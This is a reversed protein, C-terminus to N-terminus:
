IVHLADAKTPYPALSFKSLYPQPQSKRLVTGSDDRVTLQGGANSHVIDLTGDADTDVFAVKWVNADAQRWKLTGGNDLLHIGDNGNYGVVFEAKGDGDLDGAAMDNVGTGHTSTWLLSGDDDYVSANQWGFGGRNLFEYPEDDDINAFEVFSTQGFIKTTSTVDGALTVWAAGKAGAIGIKPEEGSEFRIDTVKGVSVVDVFLTKDLFSEGSLVAPRNLEVPMQVAPMVYYRVAVFVGIAAVLFLGFAGALCGIVLTRTQM